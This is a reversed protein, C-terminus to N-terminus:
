SSQPQEPAEPTSARREGIDFRITSHRDPPVYVVAIGRGTFNVTFRGERTKPDYTAIVPFTGAPGGAIPRTEMKMFGALLLRGERSLTASHITCLVKGVEVDTFHQDRQDRVVEFLVERPYDYQSVLLDFKSPGNVIKAGDLIKPLRDDVFFRRQTAM